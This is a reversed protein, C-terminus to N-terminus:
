DVFLFLKSYTAWKTPNFIDKEGKINCEVVHMGALNKKQILVIKLYAQLTNSFELQKIHKLKSRPSIHHKVINHSAKAKLCM